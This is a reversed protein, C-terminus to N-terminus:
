HHQFEEPEIPEYEDKELEHEDGEAMNAAYPDLLTIAMAVVDPGDKKGKPYDLLQAEYEPFRRYHAIYGNAYRPQLIGSIREDKGTKGHRIDEIVFYKKRRFMEGRILFILAKQYAIGEVGHKTCNWAESMAFFRDVQEAPPVGKKMFIDLALLFGKTTIGVAGLAFFDSRSNDDGIAPDCALAIADLEGRWEPKLIFFREEFLQGEAARLTSEYEMYYAHLMGALTYSKKKLELKELTMNDEWLPAGDLDIAGFIMTTFEPDLKLTMLLAESHLVTGLGIITGNPDMAPLAPVLDGYFWERTKERQDSTRVSEKDEVDDFLICDPRLGGVNLGRIQGGRGRAAVVVGTTTQFFNSTWKLENLREPKLIGFCLQILPNSALEFKVNGLQLEAATATESVYVIFKTENFLIKYLMGALGYLTTKSFGRPMILETYKSRDMDIRIPKGTGDLHVKFIPHHPSKEDSPDEQWTFHRTIKDLEKLTCKRLLWDVQGTLVALLGKHVWPMKKSFKTPLFTVCFLEPDAFCMSLLINIEERSLTPAKGVYGPEYTIELETSDTM